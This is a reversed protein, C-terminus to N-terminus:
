DDKKITLTSKVSVVHETGRAILIAKDVEAQSRAIGSLWVKGDADTDVQIRALSTPHEAALKAKIKTTIASDKVFAAPHSRDSDANEAAFSSMPILTLSAVLCTLALKTHM